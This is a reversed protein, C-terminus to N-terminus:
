VGGGARLSNEREEEPEKGEINILFIRRKSARGAESEEVADLALSLSRRNPVFIAEAKTQAM